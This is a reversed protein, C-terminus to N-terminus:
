EGMSQLYEIADPSLGSSGGKLHLKGKEMDGRIFNRTEAIWDRRKIGKRASWDAVAHYYYLIDIENFEPSEFEKEFAKFDAYRSNEFLCPSPESTRRSRTAKQQVPEDSFLGGTAPINPNEIQIAIDKNIASDINCNGTENNGNTSKLLHMQLFSDSFAYWTKRDYASANYNGTVIVGNEELSKLIRRIQGKSWFPFIKSFAEVSNYTWTRGDHFHMNNAENHEIWYAFNWIMVANDVGYLEAIKADFMYVKM